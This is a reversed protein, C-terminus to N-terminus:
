LPTLLRQYRKAAKKDTNIIYWPVCLFPQNRKLFFQMGLDSFPLSDGIIFVRKANWLADSASRWLKRITEEKFYTTKEMLPSIILSEKDSALERSQEEQQQRPGWPSVESYCITETTPNAQGSYHWNVSGHLKYYLFSNESTIAESTKGCPTVSPLASPYLQDLRIQCSMAAREVLTDYNLTIVSSKYTSWHTILSHLWEPKCPSNLTQLSREELIEVVLKRIKDNKTKNALNDNNDLWPQDQSPYTMWLEINNDVQKESYQADKLPSPLQIDNQELRESVINTLEATTPM